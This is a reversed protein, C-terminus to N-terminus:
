AAGALERRAAIKTLAALAADADAETSAWGFSVRLAARAVDASIEAPLALDGCGALYLSARPLDGRKAYVAGLTCRAAADDPTARLSKIARADSKALADALTGATAPAAIALCSAVILTKVRSLM